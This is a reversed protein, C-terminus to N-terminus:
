LEIIQLAGSVPPDVMQGDGTVKRIGRLIHSAALSRNWDRWDDTLPYLLGENTYIASTRNHLGVLRIEGEQLAGLPSSSGGRKTDCSHYVFLSESVFDCSQWTTVGAQQGGDIGIIFGNLVIEEPLANSFSMFGRPRSQGPAPLSSIQESLFFIIWDKENDIRGAGFDGFRSDATAGIKLRLLDETIASEGVGGYYSSNPMYQADEFDGLSCGEPFVGNYDKIQHASTLIADRGNVQILFANGNVPQGTEPHTCSPWLILGVRDAAQLIAREELTLEGGTARLTRLRNLDERDNGDDFYAARVPGFFLFPALVLVALFGFPTFRDM